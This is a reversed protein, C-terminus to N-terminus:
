NGKTSRLGETVNQAPVQPAPLALVPLPYVWYRLIGFIVGVVDLSFPLNLIFCFQRLPSAVVSTLWSNWVLTSVSSLPSLIIAASPITNSCLANLALTIPLQCTGLVLLCSSPDLVAAIKSLVDNCAERPAKSRLQLIRTISIVKYKFANPDLNYQFSQADTFIVGGKSIASRIARFIGDSFIMREFIDIDYLWVLAYAIQNSYEMCRMFRGVTLGVNNSSVASM